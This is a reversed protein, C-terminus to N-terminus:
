ITNIRDYIEHLAFQNAYLQWVAVKESKVLVRWASPVRWYNEKKLEGNQIVTGSSWGLLVATDEEEFHGSITLTLHPILKLHEEWGVQMQDKGDHESGDGDIFKHDVTMLDALRGVDKSNIANVFAMAVETPTM